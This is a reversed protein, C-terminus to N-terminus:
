KDGKLKRNEEKLELVEKSTEVQLLEMTRLQRKLDRIYQKLQRIHEIDQQWLIKERETM